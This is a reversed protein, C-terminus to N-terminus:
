RDGSNTADANLLLVVARLPRVRIKSLPSGTCGARDMRRVAIAEDSLHVLEGEVTEQGHDGPTAFLQVWFLTRRQPHSEHPPSARRHQWKSHKPHPKGREGHGMADMRGDVASQPFSSEGAHRQTRATMFWPVHYGLLGSGIRRRGTDLSARRATDKTSTSRAFGKAKSGAANSGQRLYVVCEHRDAQPSLFVDPSSGSVIRRSLGLFSRRVWYSLAAAGVSEGLVVDASAEVGRPACSEVTDRYLDAGIQLVPTRRYGGTLAQLDRKPAIPTGCAM